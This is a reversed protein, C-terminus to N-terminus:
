ILVSPHKAPAWFSNATSEALNATEQDYFHFICIYPNIKLAIYM